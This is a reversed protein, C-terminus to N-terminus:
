QLIGLHAHLCKKCDLLHYRVEEMMQHRWARSDSVIAAAFCLSSLIEIALGSFCRATDGEEGCAEHGTLPLTGM